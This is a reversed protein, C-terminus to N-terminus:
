PRLTLHGNAAEVKSLRGLFSMGLLSLGNDRGVLAKVDHLRISGLQVEHLTTMAVLIVGNATTAKHKYDAETFFLGIRRADNATLHVLTAGTDVLMPVTFGDIRVETQYQGVRDAAIDIGTWTTAVPVGNTKQSTQSTQSPTAVPAPKLAGLRPLALAIVCAGLGFAFLTNPMSM